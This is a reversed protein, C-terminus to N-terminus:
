TVFTRWLMVDVLAYIVEYSGLRRAVQSALCGRTYGVCDHMSILGPIRQNLSSQRLM